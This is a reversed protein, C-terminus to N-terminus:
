VTNYEDEELLSTRITSARGRRMKAERASDEAILAALDEKKKDWDQDVITTPQPMPQSMQERYWLNQQQSMAMMQAMAEYLGSYDTQPPSEPVPPPSENQKGM